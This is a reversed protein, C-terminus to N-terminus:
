ALMRWDPRKIRFTEILSTTLMAGMILAPSAIIALQQIMLLKMMVTDAAPTGDAASLADRMFGMAAFQLLMVMVFCFGAETFSPTPSKDRLLHRVWLGVEFR